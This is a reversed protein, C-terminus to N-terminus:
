MLKSFGVAGQADVEQINQSVKMLTTAFHEMEKQYNDTKSRIEEENGTDWFQSLNFESLLANVEWYDLYQVINGVARHTENITQQVKEKAEDVMTKIEIVMDESQFVADQAVSQLLEARLEIKQAGTASRIRNQYDPIHATNWAKSKKKAAQIINQYSDYLEKAQVATLGLAILGTIGGAIAGALGTISVSVSLTSITKDILKALKEGAELLEPHFSKSAVLPNGHADMQFEGFDHSSQGDFTSNFHLPVIINVKGFQKELPETRNLMSVIDFPNVYYTVKEGIKPIEKDSLGMMKLSKTVDPGDFLVVKGIKDFAKIDEQYLKAVAQASVMTGLSHGTVNLVADPAKANLERIKEQLAQNALKAQPIYTDTLTFNADNSVWDNLSSISAGDSGRIALYTQKTDNNLKATDTVFYANFGAKEDTLLGKQYTKLTDYPVQEYGGNVKPVSYTSKIPEAHLTKDPQLYVVGKNPLNKGGKVFSENGDSHKFTTDQSFDFQLSEGSNLINKKKRKLSEYPFPNPRDNYASEALNAYINNFNSLDNM